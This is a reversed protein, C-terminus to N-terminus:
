RAVPVGLKYTLFLADSKVLYTWIHTAESRDIFALAIVDGRPALAMGAVYGSPAFVFPSGVPLRQPLRKRQLLEGRNSLFVLDGGSTLGVFRKAVPDFALSVIGVNNMSRHDLWARRQADYRYLTGKGGVTVVTVIGKDVDMAVDTPRSFRPFHDPLAVDFDERTRRDVVRLGNGILQYTTEGSRSVAAKASVHLMDMSSVPESVPGTNRFPWLRLDRTLIGFDFVMPAAVPARHQPMSADVERIEVLAPVDPSALFVDPRALPRERSVGALSARFDIKREVMFYPMAVAYAMDVEKSIVASRNLASSVLIAMVRTGPTAEIKWLVKEQTSLLLLVRKGPRAVVVRTLLQAPRYGTVMLVEDADRFVDEAPRELVLPLTPVEIPAVPAGFRTGREEERKCVEVLQKLGPDDRHDLNCDEARSHATLCALALTVAVCARRSLSARHSM